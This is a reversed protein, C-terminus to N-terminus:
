TAAQRRGFVWEGRGILVLGALAATLILILVQAGSPNALLSLDPLAVAPDESDPARYRALGNATAGYIVNQNVSLQTVVDEVETLKAWTDGWDWSEYIGRSVFRNGVGYATAAVVRQPNDEDLALATVRLAAGAIMDSGSDLREWTQGGDTSRYLGTSVCGAYLRQPDDPAVALSVVQEPPSLKQWADGDTVFLGDNTLAYVRSEPGVM